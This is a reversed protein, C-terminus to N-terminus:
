KGCNEEDSSDQCDTQGNCRVASSVCQGNRCRFQHSLCQSPCDIEDSGDVCEPYGNCQANGNM